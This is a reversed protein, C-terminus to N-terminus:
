SNIGFNLEYEAGSTKYRSVSSSGSLLLLVNRNQIFVRFPDAPAMTLDRDM